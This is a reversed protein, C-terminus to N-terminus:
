HFLDHAILELLHVLFHLAQHILHVWVRKLLNLLLQFVHLHVLLRQFLLKVPGQLLKLLKFVLHFHLLGNFVEFFQRFFLRFESFLRFVFFLGAVAELGFM